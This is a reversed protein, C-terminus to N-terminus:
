NWLFKLDVLEFIYFLILPWFYISIGIKEYNLYRNKIVNLWTELYFLTIFLM